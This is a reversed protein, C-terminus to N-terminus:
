DKFRLLVSSNMRINMLPAMASEKLALELLGTSSVTLRLKRRPDAKSHQQYYSIMLEDVEQDLVTLSFHRGRRLEEFERYSMGLYANGYRDVYHVYIRYQDGQQIYTPLTRRVLNDHRPGIDRLSAGGILQAATRSFLNYAAFNYVGNEQVPLAATDDIDDGFVMSPLGNDACIFYQGRSKLAVFPHEASHSSAVDIIHVTGPPFGMCAHRVVFTAAMINYPEIDHAIDVVQVGDIMGYLVGKVMGAFFDQNGWDTTLTVIPMGM